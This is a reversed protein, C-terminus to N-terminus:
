GTSLKQLMKTMEEKSKREVAATLGQRDQRRQIADIIKRTRTPDEQDRLEATAWTRKKWEEEAAQREADRQAQRRQVEALTMFSDRREMIDQELLALVRAVDPGHGGRLLARCLAELSDGDDERARALAEGITTM